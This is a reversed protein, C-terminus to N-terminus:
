SSTSNKAKEENIFQEADNIFIKILDFDAFGKNKHGTDKRIALLLNELERMMEIPPATIFSQFTKQYQKVVEDSGWFILDNCLKPYKEIVSNSIPKKNKTSGMVDQLILKTLDGYVKIKQDRIQKEIEKQKELYRAYFISVISILAPILIEAIKMWNLNVIFSIM